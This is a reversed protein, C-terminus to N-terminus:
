ENGVSHLSPGFHLVITGRGQGLDKFQRGHNEPYLTEEEACTRGWTLETARGRQVSVSERFKIRNRQNVQRGGAQSNGSGPVSKSM